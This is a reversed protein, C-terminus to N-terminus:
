KVAQRKVTKLVVPSGSYNDLVISKASNDVTIPAILSAKGEGMGTANLRLEIVSFPYDNPTSTGVPKWFNNWAGLRRDTALIIRESGDSLRLRYAYRLSYGVTESTWLMGVSPAKKLSAALSTAPTMPAAPPPPIEDGGGGAGRGGRGGRGGRAGRGGTSAQGDVGADGRAGADTPTPIANAAPAPAAGGRNGRGGRGAPAADEVVATAPQPPSVWAKVFEDRDAETSWAFLEIRVTEGASAINDTTATFRVIPKTPTQATTRLSIAVVASVVSILILVRRVKGPLM